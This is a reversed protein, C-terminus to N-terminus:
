IGVIAGVFEQIDMGDVFSDRNVDAAEVHCSASDLGIMVQSFVPIDLANLSGDCNVDGRVPAVAFEYAGIDVIPAAGSGTDTSDPDDVFRPNGAVDTTSDMPVAANDGADICPSDPALRFDIAALGAGNVFQPDTDICGPFDSPNPPDEGPEPTLVDQVCSYELSYDGSISVNLPSVEEGRASEGWIICNRVDTPANAFIAASEDATDGSFTCNVISSVDANFSNLLCIGAGIGGHSIESSVPFQTADNRLFVCNTANVPRWSTVAGGYNSANDIFVCRNLNITAGFSFIGAGSRVESAGGSFFNKTRNGEFFCDEINIVPYPASAYTRIEIAGGNGDWSMDGYAMCRTFTCDTITPMPPEYISIAGGSSLGAANEVFTCRDIIASANNCRIAGGPGFNHVFSCDRIVPSGGEIRIGAGPGGIGATITVGDLVSTPGLDTATVVHASNGAGWDWGNYWRATGAWGPNANPNDDADIDASLITLNVAVDREDRRSETGVFGGYVAVGDVLVLSSAADAPTYTGAAIWIEDGYAAAALAVNLNSYADQWSNGNNAGMADVNVFRIQQGHAVVPSLVFLVQVLLMRIRPISRPM